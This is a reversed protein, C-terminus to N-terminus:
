RSATGPRTGARTYAKWAPRIFSRDLAGLRGAGSLALSMRLEGHLLEVVRQVGEQGFAGLGWLYPRGILIARAGLAVAKIIDGGRRIGGDVLVPIRGAVAEVVEPLVDLTGGTGDLTRAGHNSVVIAQAGNEVALRADEAAMIGKVVIPLMTASRTWKMWEWTMNPNYPDLMGAQFSVNDESTSYMATRSWEPDWWNRSPRDRAGTYPYDVTVCIAAAGAGESRKAYEIADTQNLHGLTAAWWVPAQNTKSLEQVSGPSAGAIITKTQHAAMATVRDGNPALLNKAGAPGLLIPHELKQGLLDVTTDVKSVNVGVKRRVWFRGFAERNARLTLEDAAGAAIYDYAPRAIRKRAVDEFEHLNIVKMIEERYTPPRVVDPRDPREQGQDPSAQADLGGALLPSGAVLKAFHGLAQRRTTRAIPQRTTDAMREELPDVCM